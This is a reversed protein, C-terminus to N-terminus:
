VVVVKGGANRCIDLTAEPAGVTSIVADVDAISGLRLAGTGPFKSASALLVTRDSSDIMSRKIPAEVAMDDVIQGSSRVGTCSLFLTDAAIDRLSSETLTGVLTHFNRRVVGGLLILRATDDNRLEDFVALNSTVVTVDRGRLQRAILPTTTGIDLVVVSGDAVMEAAAQAMSLKIGRDIDADYAGELSVTENDEVTAGPIVVAGGYTRILEGNRDLVELDRRITSESVGLGVALDRVSAAGAPELAALIHNRRELGIMWGAYRSNSVLCVFSQWVRAANARILEIKM